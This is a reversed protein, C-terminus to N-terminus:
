KLISKIRHICQRSEKTFIGLLSIEIFLWFSLSIICFLVWQFYGKYPSIQILHTLQIGGIFAIASIIYYRLTGKWYIRVPIKFGSKFLYYPKWFIVIFFLSSIKGILIGAIGWSLGCIITITVNITLEVWASWVDAYLGHAHNFMDVVGRSNAIYIYIVLLILINHNLIYENGLWLSIFPEIFLFISYCLLGSIFHRITMLEWFVGLIKKKDGEAVLNGIGASVSDLISNFLLTIKSIIMIYNGYFAVMKLSAFAFIFLEDSQRM